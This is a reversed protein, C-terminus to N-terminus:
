PFLAKNTFGPPRNKGHQIQQYIIITGIMLVISFTFQVVVLIKRPLSASKGVHIGGKLIKVPNDAFDSYLRWKAMPHLFIETKILKSTNADTALHSLVM